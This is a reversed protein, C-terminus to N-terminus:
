VEKLSWERFKSLGGGEEVRGLEPIRRSFLFFLQYPAVLFALLLVSVRLPIESPPLRLQDLIQPTFNLPQPSFISPEHVLNQPKPLYTQPLTILSPFPLPLLFVSHNHPLRTLFTPIFILITVSVSLSQNPV